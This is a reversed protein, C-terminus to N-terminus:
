HESLTEPFHITKIAKPASARPLTMIEYKWSALLLHRAPSSAPLLFLVLHCVLFWLEWKCEVTVPHIIRNQTIESQNSLEKLQLRRRRSVFPHTETEQQVPSPPCHIGHTSRTHANRVSVCMIAYMHGPCGLGHRQEQVQM